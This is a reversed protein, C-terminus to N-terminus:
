ERISLFCLVTSSVSIVKCHGVAVGEKVTTCTIQSHILITNTHAQDIVAM